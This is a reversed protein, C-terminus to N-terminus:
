KRGLEGFVVNLEAFKGRLAGKRAKEVVTASPEHQECAGALRHPERDAGKRPSDFVSTLDGPQVLQVNHRLM